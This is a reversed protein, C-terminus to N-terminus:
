IFSCNYFRGNLPGGQCIASEVSFYLIVFDTKHSYELYIGILKLIYVFFAYYSNMPYWRQNERVCTLYLHYTSIFSYYKETLM